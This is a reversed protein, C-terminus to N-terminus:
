SSFIEHLFLGTAESYSVTFYKGTLLHFGMAQTRQFCIALTLETQKM